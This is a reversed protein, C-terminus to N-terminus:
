PAEKIALELGIADIRAAIDRYKASEFDENRQAAYYSASRIWTSALVLHSRSDHVCYNKLKKLHEQHEQTM